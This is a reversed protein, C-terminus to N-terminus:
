SIFLAFRNYSDPGFRLILRSNHRFYLSYWIEDDQTQSKVSVLDSYNAYIGYLDFYEYEFSSYPVKLYLQNLRTKIEAKAFTALLTRFFSTKKM